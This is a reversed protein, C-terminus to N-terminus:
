PRSSPPKTARIVMSQMRDAVEHTATLTVDAFGAGTLGQAYATQTLAGAICGTWEGREAIEASTLGDDAVIDTIAIRGGTRLVRLMETFVPAKNAALNIVCNSVIVDVSDDPLPIEEILGELFEVNDVGAESANTRALELMEPTMDLGIARGTPGVRQASILVDIGGGSGLDLVVEGPALDAVSTPNGCGLSATTAGSPLSILDSEAYTGAVFDTDTSGCCSSGKAAEAYRDRVQQRIVETDNM